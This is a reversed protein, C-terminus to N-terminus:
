PENWFPPVRGFEPGAGPMLKPYKLGVMSALKWDPAAFEMRSRTLSSGAVLSSTPEWPLRRPRNWILEDPVTVNVGFPYPSFGGTMAEWGNDVPRLRPPDARRVTEAEVESPMVKWHFLSPEGMEPAM